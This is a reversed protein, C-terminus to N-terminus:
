TCPPGLPKAHSVNLNPLPETSVDCEMCLLVRILDQDLKAGFPPEQMEQVLYPNPESAM